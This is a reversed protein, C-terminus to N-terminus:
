IDFTGRGDFYISICKGYPKESPFRKIAFSANYKRCIEYISTLGIGSGGTDKHTTIKQVGLNELVEAPFAIGSDSVRIGYVGNDDGLEVLVRKEEKSYSTAILANEILDALLSSVDQESAATHLMDGINGSVAVELAIGAGAARYEMLSFLADIVLIGTKSTHIATQEYSRVTNKRESSIREIQDILSQASLIRAQRDDDQAASVLFRKVSLDLAPILKNDKHIIKSLEDNDKELTSITAKLASIEEYLAQMERHHLQEVYKKTIRNRWWYYLIMGCTILFCILILAVITPDENLGLFSSVMLVSISLYVGLDGYRSDSLFPFGHQFRKIRFFLFIQLLSMLGVILTHSIGSVGYAHTFIQELISNFTLSLTYALYSIAFGVTTLIIVANIDKCFIYVFIITSIGILVFVSVPLMYRRIYFMIVSLLGGSFLIIGYSKKSLRFDPGVLKYVCYASGVYIFYYKLTSEILDFMGYVKRLLESRLLTVM